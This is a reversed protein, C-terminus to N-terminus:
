VNRPSNEVIIVSVINEKEVSIMYLEVKLFYM